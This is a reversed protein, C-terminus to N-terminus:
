TTRGRPRAAPPRTRPTASSSTAPLPLRRRGAITAVPRAPDLEKRVLAFLHSPSAAASRSRLLARDVSGRHFVKGEVAGREIVSREARDALRAAGAAPGPDDPPSVEVRAVPRARAARRDGRRLAPQGRRDRASRRPERTSRRDRSCRDALTSREDATSRSSCSRPRTSSEAAGGPACTSCSPGRSACCSSRFTQTVLRRRARHPRAAAARGVAPRRLVVILPGHWWRRRREPM